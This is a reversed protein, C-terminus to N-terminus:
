HVVTQSQERMYQELYHPGGSGRGTTSSGKWGGFPQYGPWAGTTAGSERNAYLVGAEVTDFFWDVEEAKESYIGSTLGFPVDNIRQVAAAPDDFGAVAVIPLFLENRWIPHDAPLDTVVTPTVYYGPGADPEELLEGGTLITAHARLDAVHKQYNAYAHPTSVPGMWVDAQTPDGIRIAATEKLLLDLFEQKVANDVFVRSCASCKQGQLGFASRVVGKAAKQLDASRMILAANKGGMEALVPRAHPGTAAERYIQMGVNYSGTFTIGAVDPHEALAKGTSKGGTVFNFVGPPVGEAAFVESVIQAFLTPTYPTDEAPKLVVTNGTVLAAGTPGGSLAMPFNFPAIVAWVGFPKLISRNRHRESEARQPTVFGDNAEMTDCYIRIFDATEEIDGLAELRNKGVELSVVAALDFLRDSIREAILRLIRVREQWPTARWAPFAAKAAAVAADIDEASGDHFHGLTLRTDVPSTKAFTTGAPRWQGGVYTGYTAGFDSRVADLARDFEAHLAPDPSGLTSYTIKFKRPSTTTM